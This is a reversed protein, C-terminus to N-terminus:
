PGAAFSINKFTHQPGKDLNARRIANFANVVHDWQVDNQPFIVVPTDGDFGPKTSLEELIRTLDPFSDPSRRWNDITILYDTPDEGNQRIRVRIPSLPLPTSVLVGQETPLVSPLMGEQAQFTTAVVFFILLNFTVDIAPVLNIGIVGSGGRKRMKRPARFHVTQEGAVNPEVTM